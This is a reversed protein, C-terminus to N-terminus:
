FEPEELILPLTIAGAPDGAATVEASIEYRLREFFCLGEADERCWVVTLDALLTGTGPTLNIPVSVPFKTGTLDTSEGAPFTAVGGKEYLFLSSSADENVKYGDPLTVDLVLEAAGAGAAIPPLAVVPGNYTDDGQATFADLGSLVLTTASGTVLDIRRIVHNNTDAVWVVEGEVSLGGPEHFRPSTGDEWGQEGGYLTSAQRTSLDIAKIKSNYTDAV